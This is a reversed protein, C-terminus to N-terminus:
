GGTSEKRRAMRQQSRKLRRRSKALRARRKKNAQSDENEKVYIVGELNNSYPIYDDTALEAKEGASLLVPTAHQQFGTITKPNGPKGVVDVAKGVRVQTQIQNGEKDVVMLMRPTIGLCLSYLLYHGQKLIIEKMDLSAHAVILLGALAAPKLLTHQAHYPSLTQTGKGMHILGQAIRTIFVHSTENHYYSALGMLLQNIRSNKTGAGILGLSFIANLAIDSDHSHTLRSLRDMVNFDPNSINLIGLALAVARQINPEGYQLLHDFSRLVMQSGIEEAMSVLAIGLVAVCQHSSNDDDLHERCEALLKQVQLVNGSGAYACTEVTLQAYKRVNEPLAELAAVVPECADQKGLYLLGLALSLFRGYTSDLTNSLGKELLSTSILESLEGDCTGVYILGLALAIHSLVPVAPLGDNYMELLQELVMENPSGAYAFGLALATCKIVVPDNNTDVDDREIADNIMNFAVDYVTRVNSNLIGLGLRLGAKVYKNNIKSYRQIENPGSEYDWLHVLGTSAAASIKGHEKNKQIWNSEETMLTDKSFGANSFANVFTTALNLIASQHAQKDSLHEKYIDSEPELPKLVDLDTALLKFYESIKANGLISQLEEDDEEMLLEYYGHFAMISALQKKLVSDECGSYLDNIVDDDGIRLALLLAEPSQNMKIYINMAVELTNKDEPYPLYLASNTLYLAVRSYNHDDVHNIVFDLKEVSILLDCADSEANHTVLFPVIEYVLELLEDVSQEDEMRQEYEDSIETSLHRLYDHGWLKIAEHTGSLKFKLGERLEPDASTMSLWSIIDSLRAKDNGSLKKFVDKLTEYHPRLFKLPKPLAAVSGTASTIQTHLSDLANTVVDRNSDQLRQIILELSEKLKRDEETLHEDENKNIENDRDNKDSNNM